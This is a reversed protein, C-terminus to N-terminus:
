LKGLAKRYAVRAIMADYLAQFYNSQSIEFESQAQLIEFSSGLGQEFKIKTTNYVREALEMNRVQVDVAALANKLTTFSAVQELDIARQLNEINNTTKELNLEAQEIRRNRQFGAFIPVSMNLGIFSTRFWRENTNFFNFRQRQANESFNWFASITPIKSLKYRQVDYQQLRYLTQMMSFENRDEYQFEGPLELLGEKLLDLNLSDTLLLQDKQPLGMAFKLAGYGLEVLNKVQTLSTTLNNLSVQTKDIDLKEAFGNEFMATQDRLLRELREVSEQLIAQRKEAIVVSYYSRLVNSKISDEMVRLNYDALEVSTSRAKIGVFVDPQFLLQQLSFGVSAQWPIGFAAPFLQPDGGPKQIPQGNADRVGQEVLVDYVAPSIFDPIFTVPINFYHTMQVSGDLQPMARGTIERNLALQLRRDVQLNKIQTVNKLAMEIAQDSSIRHQEQASASRQFFLLCSLVIIKNLYILRM